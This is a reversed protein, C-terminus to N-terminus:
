ASLPLADENGSRQDPLRLHEEKVLRRRGEVIDALVGHYLVQGLQFTRADNNGVTQTGYLLAVADDHQLVPTHLGIAIELFQLCSTIEWVVFLLIRFIFFLIQM